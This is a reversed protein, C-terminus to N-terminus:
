DHRIRPDLRAYILDIALSTLLVILAFLLMVAQVMTFDRYFISDVALRGLGPISFVVEVTAAGALLQGTQLGTVTVVPLLANRLGHRWVIRRRTLGKATALAVYDQGLEELLSTRVQRIIVGTMSSALATAPMLMLLISNVPDEWFPRYGSPLLWNLWVSFVLMLMIGFWFGPIAIGGLAVTTSLTDALRGKRTASVVGLPVGIAVSILLAMFALQFTPVMRQVLAPGIPEGTRLSLGFDGVIAGTIWNWYRLHLPQNLGLQERLAAYRVPDRGGEEGLLAAATDGPLVFVIFFSIISVLFLVLLASLMRRRIYRTM